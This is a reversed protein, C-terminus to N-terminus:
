KREAPVPRKSANPKASPRPAGPAPQPRTVPAAKDDGDKPRTGPAFQQIKSEHHKEMKYGTEDPGFIDNGSYAQGSADTVTYNFSINDGTKGCFLNGLVKTQDAVLGSKAKLSDLNLKQTIAKELGESNAIGLAKTLQCVDERCGNNFLSAYWAVIAKEGENAQDLWAKDITIDGKPNKSYVFSKEPTPVGLKYTVKFEPYLAVVSSTKSLKILGGEVESGDSTIFQIETLGLPKIWIENKDQRNKLMFKEFHNFPSVNGFKQVISDGQKTGQYTEKLHFSSDPNIFLEFKRGTCNSCPITGEFKGALDLMTKVTTSTDAQLTSGDASKGSECSQLTIFAAIVVFASTLSYKMQNESHAPLFLRSIDIEAFWAGSSEPELM